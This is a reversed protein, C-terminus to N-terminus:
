YPITAGGYAKVVEEESKGILEAVIELIPGTVAGATQNTAQASYKCLYNLANLAISKAAVERCSRFSPWDNMDILYIKGSSDIVCDGGYVELGLVKASQQALREISKLLYPHDNIDSYESAGNTTLVRHSFFREKVGYFKIVMGPIHRQLIVKQVGQKHFKSLAKQCKDIEQAGIYIVDENSLAHFDGRKLWYGDPSNFPWESSLDTKSSLVQYEPYPLNNTSLLHSFQLRYCNQISTISNIIPPFKSENNKLYSLLAPGQGMLLILHFSGIDKIPLKSVGEANTRVIEVEITRGGSSSTIISKLQDLAQDMIARDAEVAQNSYIDERYIGLIRM